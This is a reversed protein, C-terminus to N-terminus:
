PELRLRYHRAQNTADNDQYQGTAPGTHLTVWNSLSTAAQVSVNLDTGTDYTLTATRPPTFQIGTVRPPIFLRMTITRNDWSGNAEGIAFQYQGAQSPSVDNLVLTSNTASPIPIGSRWWQQTVGSSSAAKCLIVEAALTATTGPMAVVNTTYSRLWYLHAPLVYLNFSTLGTLYIQQPQGPPPEPCRPSFIDSYGSPTSGGSALVQNWSTVTGQVNDWARVQFVPRTGPTLWPVVLTVNNFYGAGSGTRFTTRGIEQLGGVSSGEPGAFLAATYGTGALLPGLYVVNGGNNTGNGILQDGDCAGQLGYIPANVPGCPNSLSRNGFVVQPGQGNAPSQGSVALVFLVFLVERGRKPFLVTKM